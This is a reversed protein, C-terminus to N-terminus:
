VPEEKEPGNTSSMLARTAGIAFGGIVETSIRMFSGQSLFHSPLHPLKTVGRALIWLVWRWAEVLRM